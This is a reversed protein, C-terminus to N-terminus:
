RWVVVDAEPNKICAALYDEIFVVFGEHSGWGNAPNFQSFHVPNNKLAQLGEQLIPILQKAKTIGNEEPRWVPAYLNAVTAMDTLNHTINRWYVTEIEDGGVKCLVPEEGPFRRNWEELTIEKNEGDERIFITWRIPEPNPRRVQLFVDLSM